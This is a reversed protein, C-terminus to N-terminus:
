YTYAAVVRTGKGIVAASLSGDEPVERGPTYATVASAKM